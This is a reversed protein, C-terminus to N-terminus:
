RDPDGAPEQHGGPDGHKGEHDHDGRDPDPAAVEGAGRRCGDRHPLRGTLWRRLRLERLCGNGFLPRLGCLPGGAGPRGARRALLARQAPPRLAAPCCPGHDDCGPGDSARGLIVPSSRHVEQPSDHGAPPYTGAEQPCATSTWFIKFNSTRAGQAPGPSPRLFAKVVSFPSWRPAGRVCSSSPLQSRLRAKPEIASRAVPRQAHALPTRATLDLPGRWRM